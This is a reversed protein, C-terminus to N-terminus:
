GQALALVNLPLVERVVPGHALLTESRSAVARTSPEDDHFRNYIDFFNLEPNNWITENMLGSAMLAAFSLDAAHICFLECIEHVLSQHEVTALPLAPDGHHLAFNILPNNTAPFNPAPEELFSKVM